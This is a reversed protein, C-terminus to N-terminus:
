MDEEKAKAIAKDWALMVEEHSHTDNFAAIGQEMAANLYKDAIWRTGTYEPLYKDYTYNKAGISCFKCASPNQTGVPQEYKNRAEVFRTWKEYTDILAKAEQMLEYHKKM